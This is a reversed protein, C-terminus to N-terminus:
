RRRATRRRQLELLLATRHRARIRGRRDSLRNDSSTSLPRETRPDAGGNHTSFQWESLGGSNALAGLVSIPM